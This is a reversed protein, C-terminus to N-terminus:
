FDFNTNRKKKEVVTNDKFNEKKKNMDEKILSKVYYSFDKDGIFDLLYQEKKKFSVGKVAM